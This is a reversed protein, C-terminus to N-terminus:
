LGAETVSGILVVLGLGAGLLAAYATVSLLLNTRRPGRRVILRVLLLSSLVWAVLPGVAFLFTLPAYVVANGYVLANAKTFLVAGALLTLAACAGLHKWAYRMFDGLEVRPTCLPEGAEQRIFSRAKVHLILNGVLTCIFSAPVSFMVIFPMYGAGGSFNALHGPRIRLIRKKRKTM